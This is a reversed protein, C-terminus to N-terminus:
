LTELLRDFYTFHTESNFKFFMYSRRGPSMGLVDWWRTGPVDRLKTGYVDRPRGWKTCKCIKKELLFYYCIHLVLIIADLFCRKWQTILKKTPGKSDGSPGRSTGFTLVKLSGEPSTGPVDPAPQTASEWFNLCISGVTYKEHVSQKGATFSPFTKTLIFLIILVIPFPEPKTADSFSIM